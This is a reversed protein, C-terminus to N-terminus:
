VLSDEMRDWAELVLRQTRYEGYQAFEKKKLVRFTESPYDEGMVESPDLIYQLEERNLGYLRAYRADLEARVVARREPNWPFPGFPVLSDSPLDLAPTESDNEHFERWAEGCRTQVVVKGNEDLENWIDEAWLTMDESVYTLELVRPILFNLDSSSYKEPPLITFQKLYHYTLSTGGIKQRAIYDLSLSGLNGLFCCKFLHSLEDSFRFLPTKHNVGVRPIVSAIVTRENTANTIDRWGLLWKPSNERLEELSREDPNALSTIRKLVEREEVWYRPQATFGPNAKETELCDRSKKDSGATSSDGPAQAYTAWRHDFQHIMKAEYLPLFNEGPETAFLGSDNSMDLMRLFKIGWPNIEPDVVNGASDKEEERILVPVNRYIKKTLEADYNSRFVPCTRTNPNLLAIEEPELYFARNEDKIQEANTLFFAFRTKESHGLTLTCFKMRSDVAPFLKERNEFDYLSVLLSSSAIHGFYAKTSDDTAIGSPVIFGARGSRHTLHLIAEAFLAYTNVDGIGTLTYRGREKEKVHVFQSAAEASRRASIFEDYLKVDYESGEQLADILKQRQAKNLANAIEEHRSAFFEEEQLKIREWPPNGLVVDFGGKEFIQPFRLPWHFVDNELCAREAEEIAESDRNQVLDMLIRQLTQTTPVKNQETDEKKPILYTGIYVQAALYAPSKQIKELVDTWLGQKKFVSATDGDDMVELNKFIALSDGTSLDLEFNASQNWSELEKLGTRNEASLTKCLGKDDGSLAKFAAGPIGKKLQELDMVGLLSDGVQLHHDLFGLAKGTEFGELWLAMRALEVAMPNRDVGYICHSIVERLAHRYQDPTVSGDESSVQALKEAMRRAAALLFHGSGSSPDIISISLLKEAASKGNEEALRQEIVPDLASKILEQVLSDPTYYSGTTKRANGQSNGTDGEIGVFGFHLQSLDVVPVLELLSEYVSGFEEPGMNKYDVLALTGSSITWRLDKTAKLLFSNTLQTEDLHPCQNEAFIGGLAPLDLKSEGRNLASFVVQVGKWLDNYGDHSGRRLALDRLRAMSYGLNYLNQSAEIERNRSDGPHLFGREEITYLFLFRYILRLIEQYYAMPTLEGSRLAEILKRNGEGSSKLFGQGLHILARTVGQRLGERVRTGQELGLKRWLEWSCSEADNQPARSQHLILWLAKFDAYREEELIVALDLELWVPRVLTHSDRLLRITKGNSVIAWLYDRSSNLFEQTMQFPSKRRNGGGESAFDVSLTDLTMDQESRSDVLVLPVRESALHGIPYALGGSIMPDTKRLSTFGLCDHFFELCFQISKGHEKYAKWAALAIQFSRGYEDTLQLGRPLNYGAPKQDEMESRAAKELIDPVFLGGELHLTDFSLNSKNVRM